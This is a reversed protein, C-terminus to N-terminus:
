VKEWPLPPMPALQATVDATKGHQSIKNYALAALDDTLTLNAPLPEKHEILVIIATRM